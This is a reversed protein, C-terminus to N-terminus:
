KDDNQTNKSILTKTILGGVLAGIVGGMLMNYKRTYAFYLGLFLGIGAGTYAGQIKDLIVKNGDKEKNSMIKDLMEKGYAM